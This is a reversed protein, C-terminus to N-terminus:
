YIPGLDVYNKHGYSPRCHSSQVVTILPVHVRGRIENVEKSIINWTEEYIHMM